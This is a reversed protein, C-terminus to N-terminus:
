AAAEVVAPVAAAHLAIRSAIGEQVGNHVAEYARNLACGFSLADAAGHSKVVLGHLGLLCAGNYRRPDYRRRFGAIAPLALLATLRRLWSSTFEQKLSRAFLQAVGESTKLAVNGVFGDCVVVDVTGKFIDNGEVNGHFVVEGHEHAARLLEAAEKVVENGKMEEEGINLLGVLPKDCHEV